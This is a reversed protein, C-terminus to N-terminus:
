PDTQPEAVVPVGYSALITKIQPALASLASQLQGELQKDTKRVGMSIDFTMPPSEDASVAISTVVLPPKEDRAFYGAVPGWVAAVDVEGIAVAHVVESLPHAHRYDGYVMFGRVNKVIGREALAHAPPSNMGDDGILQVGIKRMRLSPDDFSSVPPEGSKSVFVYTSRYYPSTTLAMHAGSPVAAVLDCEGDNLGERLFGRRQARWVYELPRQLHDAVLSVIKNEFGEGASDSFPLNNPDACVRLPLQDAGARAAAGFIALVFLSLTEVSRTRRGFGRSM